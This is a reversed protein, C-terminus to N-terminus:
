LSMAFTSRAGTFTHSALSAADDMGVQYYRPAKGSADGHYDQLVIQESEGTLGKWASYRTWLDAPSPFADLGLDAEQQTTAGTRDHFVFGDRNSSFVFPVDLTTAYDLGQQMGDGVSHNNIYGVIDPTPPSASRV